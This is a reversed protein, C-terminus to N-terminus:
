RTIKVPISCGGKLCFLSEGSGGGSGGKSGSDSIICDKSDNSDGAALPSEDSESVFVRSVGKAVVRVFSITKVRGGRKDLSLTCLNM